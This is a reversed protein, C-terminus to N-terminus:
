FLFSFFVLVMAAAFIILGNYVFGTDPLDKVKTPIITSTIGAESSAEGTVSPNAYALIIETPTPTPAETTGGAEVFSKNIESSTAPTTSVAPTSTPALTPTLTPEPSINNLAILKSYTVNAAKTKRPAVASTKTENDGSILLNSIYFIAGILFITMFILLGTTIKSKDQFM